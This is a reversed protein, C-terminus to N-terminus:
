QNTSSSIQAIEALATVLTQKLSNLHETLLKLRHFTETDESTLATKGLQILLNMDNDIAAIMTAGIQPAVLNTSAVPEPQAPIAPPAQAPLRTRSNSPTSLGNLPPLKSLSTQPSPTSAQSAIQPMPSPITAQPIIQSILPATEPPPIFQNVPPAQFNPQEAVQPVFQNVPPAQFNPQEAVQPLFSSQPPAQLNSQDIVAGTVRPDVAQHEGTSHVFLEEESMQGNAVRILDGFLEKALMPVQEIVICTGGIDWSLRDNKWCSNIVMLPKYVSEDIRHLSFGLLVEAPIIYVSISAINGRLLMAWFRTVLHGEYIKEPLGTPESPPIIEPNEMNPRTTTVVLDTGQATHNFRASYLDFQDFLKDVWRILQREHEEEVTSTTPVAANGAIQNVDVLTNLWAATEAGRRQRLSELISHSASLADSAQAPAEHKSDV